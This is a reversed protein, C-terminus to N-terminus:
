PYLQFMDLSSMIDGLSTSALRNKLSIAELHQYELSETNNWSVKSLNFDGALIFICDSYKEAVTPIYNILQMYCELSSSPSIYVAGIVFKGHNTIVKVFVVECGQYNFQTYDFDVICSKLIRKIGILVGGGQSSETASVVRDCRYINYNSLGLEGNFNSSNLWTETLIIIDPETVLQNLNNQIVTLKVKISRM